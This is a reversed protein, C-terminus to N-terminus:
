CRPQRALTALTSDMGEDRIMHRILGAEALVKRHATTDAGTMFSYQLVVLAPRAEGDRRIPVFRMRPLVQCVATFFAKPAERGFRASNVDVHGATDVVVFAFFGAPVGQAQLNLPYQPLIETVPRSELSDAFVLQSAPITTVPRPGQDPAPHNCAVVTVVLLALSLKRASELRGGEM